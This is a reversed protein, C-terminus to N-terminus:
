LMLTPANHQSPEVMSDFYFNWDKRLYPRSLKGLRTMDGVYKIQTFFERIIEDAVPGDYENHIPFHLAERVEDHTIQFVIDEYSFLIM